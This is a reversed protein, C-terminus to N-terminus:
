ISPQVELLHVCCSTPANLIMVKCSCLSQVFERITSIVHSKGSGAAGDVMLLPPKPVECNRSRAKVLNRAHKVAIELIKSQNFDLEAAIEKLVDLPRVDIPKFSKERSNKESVTEIMEPDLHELSPLQEFVELKNDDLEQEVEPNILEGIADNNTNMEEAMLRALENEALHEMVLNKVCSIRNTFNEWTEATLKAQLIESNLHEENVHPIYLMAESFWFAEADKELKVKHFRLVAPKQRLKMYIPEGPYPNRLEFSNPLLPGEGDKCECTMAHFFKSDEHNINEDDVLDFQLDENSGAHSYVEQIMQSQSDPERSNENQCNETDEKEVTKGWWPEYIKTFQAFSLDKM